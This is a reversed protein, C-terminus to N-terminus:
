CRLVFGASVLLDFLLCGFVLRLKLVRFEHQNPILLAIIILEAIFLSVFSTQLLGSM